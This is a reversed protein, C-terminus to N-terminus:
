KPFFYQIPSTHLDEGVYFNTWSETQVLVNSVYRKTLYILSAKSPGDPCKDNLICGQCMRCYFLSAKYFIDTLVCICVTKDSFWIASYELFECRLMISINYKDGHISSEFKYLLIYKLLQIKYDSHCNVLVLVSDSISMLTYVDNNLDSSIRLIIMFNKLFKFWQVLNQGARTWVELKSQLFLKELTFIWLNSDM